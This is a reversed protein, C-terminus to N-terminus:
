NSLFIKLVSLVAAILPLNDARTQWSDLFEFYYLGKLISKRKWHLESELRAHDDVM